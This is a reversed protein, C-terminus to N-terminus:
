DKFKFIMRMRLNGQSDIYKERSEEPPPSLKRKLWIALIMAPISLVFPIYKYWEAELIGDADPKGFFIIFPTIALFGSFLAVWIYHKLTMKWIVYICAFYWYAISGSNAFVLIILAKILFMILLLYNWKKYKSKNQASPLYEMAQAVLKPYKYKEVLLDFVDQKSKEDKLLTVADKKIQTKSPIKQRKTM